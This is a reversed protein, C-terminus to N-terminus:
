LAKDFRKEKEQELILTELNSLREEYRAELRDLSDELEMVSKALDGNNASHAKVKAWSRVVSAVMLCGFIIAAVPVLEVM